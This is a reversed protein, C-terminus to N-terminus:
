QKILGQLLREINRLARQHGISDAQAYAWSPSEYNVSKLTGEQVIRLDEKIIEHLRRMVSNNTMAALLREFEEIEAPDKLNSVWRSPRKHKVQQQDLSTKTM